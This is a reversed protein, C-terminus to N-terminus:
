SYDKESIYTRKWDDKIWLDPDCQRLLQGGLDTVSSPGRGVWSRRGSGAQIVWLGYGSEKADNDCRVISLGNMQVWQTELTVEEEVVTGRNFSGIYVSTRPM